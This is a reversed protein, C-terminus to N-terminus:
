RRHPHLTANPTPRPTQRAAHFFAGFLAANLLWFEMGAQSMFFPYSFTLAIAGLDYAFIVSGWLWFEGQEGRQLALRFVWLATALLALPYLLLVLVGGDFIWATWQIEVWLPPRSPDSNDGFYANAMGYRGLGAGLPYAPVVDNFTGELFHGRNSYYVQGADAEFLRNWRATAAEGGMTVAWGVAVVALGGVVALLKTLRLIRGSLMLVGAMAMLCVVLMLALARVQCLYLSVIGVFIGGVSLLRVPGRRSSILFGSGLLVAYFAGTAAGGPVDTLGFPRFVLAGSGSEFQLSRIYTEGMGAIASSMSPQFRGPFYVQLVGMAASAANFLFLLALTRRFTVADIRLRTVWFLPALVSIQIGLQTAGALFSSTQPHFMNLATIATSALLFPVAPHRLRPGRVFALLALSCGFALIRILVRLPSIAEVLLSLQCGIQMSIFATVVRGSAWFAPPAEAAAPTAEGSAAAGEAPAVPPPAPRVYRRRLVGPGRLQPRGSPASPKLPTESM